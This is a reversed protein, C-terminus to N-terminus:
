RDLTLGSVWMVECAGAGIDTRVLSTRVWVGDDRKADVLIGRLTVVQGRRLRRLQSAIMSNEPIVHTNSTGTGAVGHPMPFFCLSSSRIAGCPALRPPINPLTGHLADATM